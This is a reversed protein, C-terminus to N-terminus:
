SCLADGLAIDATTLTANDWDVGAKTIKVKDITAATNNLAAIELSAQDVTLASDQSNYDMGVAEFRLLNAITSDLKVNEAKYAWISGRGQTSIEMTGSSTVSALDDMGADLEVNGKLSASYNEKRGKISATIQKVSFADGLAIDATTLTAKGWDVGAKTIKVKDITAATNNLAAIELSAQDVTLASDQSNYDMGVAEFRLLNAITAKLEVNQAEYAWVSGRGQTSIKMTGSLNIKALDTMKTNLEVNGQLSASYGKGEGNINATIQRVAFADGLAIDATTLTANDWDVGAKTIKVKDITAATNNLAAIELSAQDVTLASDQSNYDMGVAEFRLLNAITADLKVNEAKYAWISGRGQTSIEMTGSSTVSALDDMGANLEVNGKLSASYNEKRGKISATIQKVSFADGLAIDATTLTAKGWDVGDKNIKVKDITAATNNLAAIELSAQDVTLASDQSNYQINSAEFKLIDAITATLKVNETQYDWTGEQYILQLKGKCIVDAVDSSGIGVAIKGELTSHYNADKGSVNAEIGQVTVVDSLAIDATKLTAKDWNVGAKDIKADKVEASTENFANITIKAKAIKIQRALLDYEINKSSFTLIESLNVLISGDLLQSNWVKKGSDYTLKLTGASTVPAAGMKLDFGSQIEIVYHDSVLNVKGSPQLLKIGPGLEIESLNSALWAKAAEADEPVAEFFGGQPVAAAPQPSAAPPPTKQAPASVKRQVIAGRGSQQVVHTLEHALLEQGQRSKPQYAGQKFFIDRGKTFAVSQVARNLQNSQSNTHIKVGSFDANFAQELPERVDESISQGQGQQQQIATELRPAVTMGGSGSPPSQRMLSQGPAAKFQASPQSIPANIQRVVQAAVRDAEQEYRDGPQSVALKAQVQAGSLDHSLGRFLAPSPLNPRLASGTSGGSIKRFLAQAPASRTQPQQAAILRGFSQNGILEPLNGVAQPPHSNAQPQVAKPQKSPSEPQHPQLNGM